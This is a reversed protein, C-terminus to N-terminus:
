ALTAIASELRALTTNLDREYTLRFPATPVAQATLDPGCLPVAAVYGLDHTVPTALPYTVTMPNQALWAKWGDLTLTSSVARWDFLLNGNNEDGGVVMGGKDKGSNYSGKYEFRTCMPTVNNVNSSNGAPRIDSFGNDAVSSRLWYNKPEASAQQWSEDGDFTVSGVRQVLVAHGDAGVTLEDRTGDPLSRLEHGDLDIPTVSEVYPQYATATTGLQLQPRFTINVTQGSYVRIDVYVSTEETLTFTTPNGETLAVNSNNSMRDIRLNWKGAGGQPAGSLTYTGAALPLSIVFQFDSRASATGSANVSGDANVTYTIGSITKTTGSPLLNRGRAWLGANGYPVYPMSALGRVLMPRFTLNSVTQGSRIMVYLGCSQMGLGDAFTYTAGSGYDRMRRTGATDILTLEYTGEAGGTPCGSLTYTGDPLHYATSDGRTALNFQANATATGNATISGDANITFTVGNVTKSTNNNKALNGEVSVIPVHASPTPTGDQTSRGYLALAAMPTQAADTATATEGEPLANTLLNDLRYPLRERDRALDTALKAKTISGDQVTTTWEPHATLVDEVMDPMEAVADDLADIADQIASDYSDAVEMGDYACPKVIVAFRETSVITNGKTLTFYANDTYGHVSAVKSEDCVYTIVGANYTANDRVYHKGDPLEILFQATVGTEALKTGNDYITAVITTGSADGQAIVIQQNGTRKSLDLSIRQTNM